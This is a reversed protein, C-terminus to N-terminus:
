RVLQLELISYGMLAFCLCHYSCMGIEKIDFLAINEECVSNRPGWSLKGWCYYTAFQNGALFKKLHWLLHFAGPLVLNPVGWLDPKWFPVWHNGNWQIESSANPHCSIQL